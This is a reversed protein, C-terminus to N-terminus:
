STRELLKRAIDLMARETDAPGETGGLMLYEIAKREDPTLALTPHRLAQLQADTLRIRHGENYDYPQRCKSCMWDDYTPVENETCCIDCKAKYTGM